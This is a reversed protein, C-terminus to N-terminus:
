EGVNEIMPIKSDWASSAVGAAKIYERTFLNHPFNTVRDINKSNPANAIDVSKPM